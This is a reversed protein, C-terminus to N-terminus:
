TLRWARTAQVPNPGAREQAELSATAESLEAALHIRKARYESPPLLAEVFPLSPAYAFVGGVRLSWLIRVYARAHALSLGNAAPGDALHHRLFHLSLGLHSVVTGWVGEGYDFNLWDAVAVGESGESAVRDFGFAQVGRERLSVVLAAEGGCGVDLVPETIEGPLLALVRLQLSPSYAACVADRPDEGLRARAFSALRVRHAEWVERLEEAARADDDRSSLVRETEEIARRYAADLQRAAGEDVRLFQNREQLWPVLLDRLL